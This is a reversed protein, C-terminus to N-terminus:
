HPSIIFSQVTQSKLIHGNATNVPSRILSPKKYSITNGKQWALFCQGHYHPSRIVSTATLRPEVTSAFKQFALTNKLIEFRHKLTKLPRSRRFEQEQLSSAKKYSGLKRDFYERAWQNSDIVHNENVDRCWM